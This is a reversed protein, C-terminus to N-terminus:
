SAANATGIVASTGTSLAALVPNSGVTSCCDIQTLSPDGAAGQPGSTGNVSEKLLDGVVHVIRDVTVSGATSGTWRAALSLRITTGPSVIRKSVIVWM